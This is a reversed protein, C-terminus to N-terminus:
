IPQKITTGYLLLVTSLPYACYPYAAWRSRATLTPLIGSPLGRLLQMDM